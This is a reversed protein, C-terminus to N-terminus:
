FPICDEELGRAVQEYADAKAELYRVARTMGAPLERLVRRIEAARGKLDTARGTLGTEIEERVIKLANGSEPAGTQRAIRQMIKDLM